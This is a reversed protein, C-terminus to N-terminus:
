FIQTPNLSSISYVRAQCYPSHRDGVRNFSVKFGEQTLRFIAIRSLEEIPEPDIQPGLIQDFISGFIGTRKLRKPRFILVTTCDDGCEYARRIKQRMKAYIQNNEVARRREQFLVM